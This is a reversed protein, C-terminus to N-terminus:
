IDVTLEFLGLEEFLVYFIADFLLIEGRANGAEAFRSMARAVITIGAEAEISKNNLFDLILVFAGGAYLFRAACWIGFNSVQWVGIINAVCAVRGLAFISYHCWILHVKAGGAM